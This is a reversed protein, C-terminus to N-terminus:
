PTFAGSNCSNPKRCLRRGALVTAELAAAMAFPFAVRTARAVLPRFCFAAILPAGAAVVAGAAFGAAVAGAALGAGAVGAATGDGAFDDQDLSRNAVVRQAQARSQGCPLTTPDM